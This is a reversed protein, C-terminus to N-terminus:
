DTQAITQQVKQIAEDVNQAEFKGGAAPKHGGGNLQRAIVAVDKIGNVSRFSVSYSNEGELTNKFVLFGWQRGDINRLYEDLFTGIGIKLQPQTLGAGLWDAIFQDSLYSYTYDQNNSLNTFLESLVKIDADNYRSLLNKAQEVSAGKIVLEKAMDFVKDTNDGKSYAFGGSDAYLGIMATQAAGEPPKLELLHFCFDYVDQVTALSSNNIFVDVNDKDALEHHDIVATKINNNALFNRVQAGDHRSCREYNNGDLLIFLQLPVDKLGEVLPKFEIDQYGALFDLNVPEEELVMRVDKQPYNLKLTTGLLLLSSVADPDPSIHSTILIQDSQDILDKLKQEM